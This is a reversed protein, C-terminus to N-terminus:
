SAGVARALAHTLEDSNLAPASQAGQTLDPKPSTATTTRESWLGAQRRMTAEDPATLILEADTTIGHEAAIRYRMAELTAKAATEQAETAARQARELDSLNAAEIKDLQAKLEAAQRKAENREAKMLDLAKKGADGLNTEDEAPNGQQSTEAKEIPGKGTSAAAAAELANPTNESM